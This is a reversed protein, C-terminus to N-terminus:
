LKAPSPTHTLGRLRDWLAVLAVGAFIWYFPYTPFIYRPLALVVLHLTSTYVIFGILVPAITARQRMLAMGIIGAVLAIYHWIYILLKVAFGEGNLLRWLSDLRLGDDIWQRALDRLSENGFSVTGHPQLYAGSLENIRLRVFSALDSRIVTLSQEMPTEDGLLEDNQQPSGDEEIAGRWLAPFFQNSVIIVRQYRVLNYVTWTSITAGYSVLLILVLMIIKRWHDRGLWLMHLAIVAPFLLGVARTLTALGLLVGVSVAQALHAQTLTPALWRCYVWVGTMLLSMYLTETLILSPEIIMPVSFALAGAVVLGVREDDSLLRALDFAVYCTLAGMMTQVLRIAIMSQELSLVQQFAGTFILYLPAIPLNNAAYRFGGYVTGTPDAMFLGMGNALYWFEDGGSARLALPETTLAMVVRLLWGVGIIVLLWRRTRESM